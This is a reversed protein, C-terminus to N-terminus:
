RTRIRAYVWVAALGVPFGLLTRLLLYLILDAANGTVSFSSVTPWQEAAALHTFVYAAVLIAWRGWIPREDPPFLFRRFRGRTM